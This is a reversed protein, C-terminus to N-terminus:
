DGNPAAAVRIEQSDTGGLNDIWTVRILDNSKVDNLRFSFYPNRSIATTLNGRVRIKRNHEVKLETIFHAAITQGTSEDRRRGTEMPHEILLRVLTKDGERKTRITITSM